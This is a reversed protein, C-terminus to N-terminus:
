QPLAAKGSAPEKVAQESDVWFLQFQSFKHVREYRRGRYGVYLSASQPLWLQLHPKQFEVPAYDIALHDMQLDIQPMPSVLDTEMRLVEYTDATIWARGKLRLLYLSGGVRMAHFAKEPDPSEEFRVQWAPAGRMETAGECRVEFNGIHSPHFILAFAATGTDALPPHQMDTDGSRYEEIRPYGSSNQEIQVVYNMEQSTTRSKGSKGIEIHEIRESASFRQLNDVLEEARKSTEELITPLPCSIARVPPVAEDIDPPGWSRLSPRGAAPTVMPSETPPPNPSLKALFQKVLAADEPNSAYKLYERLEVEENAPDGKAEYIQALVFHVRPERHNKDIAVARLGSKEAGALDHTNLSAAARYEYAVPNNGPDLELARSSLKLVEGWDHARLAIDAVCLYAPVYSSDVISGQSCADRAEDTRQQAALVQGLTVWAASYKPYSEVAKRLYKEADAPKKNKLAACAEQYEKRTKAPLQLQAAAVTPTTTLNLPPLLCTDNKPPTTPAAPGGNQANNLRIRDVEDPSITRIEGTDTEPISHGSDSRVVQASAAISAFRLGVALLLFWPVLPLGGRSPGSAASAVAPGCM